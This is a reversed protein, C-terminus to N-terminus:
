RVAAEQCGSTRTEPQRGSPEEAKEADEELREELSEEPEAVVKRQWVLIWM